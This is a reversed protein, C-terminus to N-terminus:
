RDKLTEVNELNLNISFIQVLKSSLLNSFLPEKDGVFKDLNKEVYGLISKASKFLDM